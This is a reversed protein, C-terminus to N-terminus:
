LRPPSKSGSLTVTSVARNQQEGSSHGGPSPPSQPGSSGPAIVAGCSGPGYEALQPGIAEGNGAHVTGLRVSPLPTGPRRRPETGRRQALCPRLGNDRRACFRRSSLGHSGFRRLRPSVLRSRAKTSASNLRRHARHSRATSSSPPATGALWSRATSSISSVPATEGPRRARPSPKDADEALLKDSRM